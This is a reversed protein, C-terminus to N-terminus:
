VIPQYTALLNLRSTVVIIHSRWLLTALCARAIGTQNPLDAELRQQILGCGRWAEVHAGRLVQHSCPLVKVPGSASWVM